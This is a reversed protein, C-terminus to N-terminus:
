KFKILYKEAFPKIFREGFAYFGNSIPANESFIESANILGCYELAYLASWLAAVVAVGIALYVVVALCGDVVKSGEDAKILDGLKCLGVNLFIFAVIAVAAMLVGCLLKGLIGGLMQNSMGAFMDSCRAIFTGLIPWDAAMKMFPLILCAVVCATGGVYVILSRVGNFLGQEYGSFAIAFIIGITVADLLYILAYKLLSQTAPVSFAIGISTNYLRTASIILTAFGLVVALVTAMNIVAVIGGMLRTFFCPKGYGIKILEKDDDGDIEDDTEYEFGYDDYVTNEKKVWKKRPRLIAALIGYLILGILVCAVAISLTSFFQTLEANFKGEFLKNVPNVDRLYKNAFVFGVAVIAWFFGGWSIKRFGQVMGVIFAIVLIVACAIAVIMPLRIMFGELALVSQLPIM